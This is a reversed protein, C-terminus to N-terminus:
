KMVKFTKCVRTLVQLRLADSNLFLDKAFSLHTRLFFFAESRSGAWKSQCQLKYKEYLWFLIAPAFSSQKRSDSGLLIICLKKYSM